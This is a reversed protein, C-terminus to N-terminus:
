RLNHLQLTVLYVYNDGLLSVTLKSLLLLPLFNCVCVCCFSVTFSCGYPNYPCSVDSLPCNGYKVSLHKELQLCLICSLACDFFVNIVDTITSSTSNHVCTCCCRCASTCITPTALLKYLFVNVYVNWCM